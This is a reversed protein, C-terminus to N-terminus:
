NHFESKSTEGSSNATLAPSFSDDRALQAFVATLNGGASVRRWLSRMRAGDGIM